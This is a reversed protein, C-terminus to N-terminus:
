WPSTPHVPVPEECGSHGSDTVQVIKQQTEPVGPLQYGTHFIQGIITDLGPLNVLHHQGTEIDRPDTGFLLISHTQAEHTDQPGEKFLLDKTRESEEPGSQPCEGHIRQHAGTEQIQLATQQGIKATQESPDEQLEEYTNPDDLFALGERIYDETDQVVICSGKDAQKITRTRDGRLAFLTRKHVSSMNLWRGKDEERAPQEAPQEATKELRDRMSSVREAVVAPLAPAGRTGAAKNYARLCSDQFQEFFELPDPTKRPTPAFRLGLQLVQKEEESLQKKSLNLVEPIRGVVPRRPPEQNM